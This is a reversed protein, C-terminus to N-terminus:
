APRVSPERARRLANLGAFGLVLAVPIPVIAALWALGDVPAQVYSDALPGWDPVLHVAVFGAATAFGVVVAAMPAARHRIAALTLSTLIAVDGLIGIAIVPGEVGRAQRVHDLDHLAIALLLIANAALLTRDVRPRRVRVTHAVAETLGRPSRASPVAPRPLARDV